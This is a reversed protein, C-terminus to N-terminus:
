LINVPQRDKAVCVRDKIVYCEVYHAGRFSTSEEIRWVKNGEMIQGRVCNRTKAEDGGNKVKWYITYPPPVTCKEVTFRITRGPSVKSGRTALDYVRFGPKPLVRGSLRVSYRAVLQTPIDLDELHQETDQYTHIEAASKQSLTAAAKPKPAQFGDGFIQQWLKLSADKDPELYAKDIKQAYHIMWRRFNAYGEQSWRDSLNDGSGGPDMISPLTPQADVYGSLRNMVTRLTTPVDQYGSDGTLLSADIVQNGLLTNLIVSKVSFTGKYDRLYKILRIVKVLHREATRNQEDLWANYAEPDTAEFRDENRNTIYKKGHREMYPVVDVHFDGAYNVVVCRSRRSVMDRYINSGRFSRYLEEVYDKPQWGSCEKLHLLLDADFEHHEQVPRIITKHAYSGQAITDVFHEAFTSSDRLFSSISEARQDLLTIRSDNLNVEDELFAKFYQILKM